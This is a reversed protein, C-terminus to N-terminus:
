NTRRFTAPTLSSRKLELKHFVKGEQGILQFTVTPDAPTTDFTFEGFAYEGAVGYFQTDWEPKSVPPGSLGGLSAAEFEYLTFGSPRPIRFGRAGHRDGSILLVGAINNKEIFNFLDERGAPDIGGWSGKGDSVHDTWMTGCSIVIFPGKCDLLQDKLWQMQKAGLFVGEKENVYYRNDTMLVDCQGIRTRLFVGKGDEGFGYGPNNWSHKFARWVKERDAPTFGEPIGALDNDFYDHDDWSAYVPITSVLKQWAPYLDRALFDLSHWGRHDRRDQVAIDGIALFAHPERSIMTRSQQENGLGWRHYCSGFVIRTPVEPSSALTRIAAELPVRLRNENVFVQYPYRQNPKLGSVKVVASLDSEKTSKVPGFRRARGDVDVVVSVEAPEVTRVWVDVSHSTVGGLMPGGLHVIGKQRCYARFHRYESLEAFSGDAKAMLATEAWKYLMQQEVPLPRDFHNLFILNDPWRPSFEIGNRVPFNGAQAYVTPSVLMVGLAACLSKCCRLTARTRRPASHTLPLTVPSRQHGGERAQMALWHAPFLASNAIAKRFNM